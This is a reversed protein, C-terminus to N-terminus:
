YQEYSKEEVLDSGVKLNIEKKVKARKDNTVYVSRALKIFEQDFEKKSEKIRIKDEIDWLEANINELSQFEFYIDPIKANSLVSILQKLEKRVNELKLPDSINRTKIKLITIKDVLEGLSIPAEIIM